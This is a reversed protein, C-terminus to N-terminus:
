WGWFSCKSLLQFNYFECLNYEETNWLGLVRLRGTEAALVISSYRYLATYSYIDSNTLVLGLTKVNVVKQDRLFPEWTKKRLKEFKLANKIGVIHWLNCRALLARLLAILKTTKISFIFYISYSCWGFNASIAYLILNSDHVPFKRILVSLPGTKM